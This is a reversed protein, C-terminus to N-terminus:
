EIQNEGQAEECDGVTTAEETADKEEVLLPPVLKENHM